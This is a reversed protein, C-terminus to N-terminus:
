IDCNQLEPAIKPKKHEDKIIPPKVIKHKVESINEEIPIYKETSESCEKHESNESNTNKIVSTGDSFNIHIEDIDKSCEIVLKFM